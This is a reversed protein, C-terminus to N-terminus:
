SSATLVSFWDTRDTANLYLFSKYGFDAVGYLSNTQTRSFGNGATKTVGNGYTYLNPSVFDTANLNTSRSNSSLINGGATLEASFDGYHHNNTGMLFDM